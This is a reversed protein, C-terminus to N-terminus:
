GCRCIGRALLSSERSMEMVQEPDAVNRAFFIVGGLDFEKAIQRVEEPVVHGNFGVIALQGVQRRIDRVSMVSFISCPRQIIEDHADFSGRGRPDVKRAAREIDPREVEKVVARLREVGGDAKARVAFDCERM